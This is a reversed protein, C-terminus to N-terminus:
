KGIAMHMCICAHGLGLPRARFPGPGKSPPPELLKFEESAWPEERPTANRTLAHFSKGNDCKAKTATLRNEHHRPIPTCNSMFAFLLTVSYCLYLDSTPCWHMCIWAHMCADMCAHMDMCGHMCAYGICPHMCICICAHMCICAHKCFHSGILSGQAAPHRPSPGHMCAHM